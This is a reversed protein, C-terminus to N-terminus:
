SNGFLENKNMKYLEIKVDKNSNKKSKTKHLINIINSLAM